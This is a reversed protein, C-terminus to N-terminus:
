DNERQKMKALIAMLKENGGAPPRWDVHVATGGQNRISEAFSALGVNIATVGRGGFAEMKVLPRQADPQPLRNYVYDLAENVNPFVQAGTAALREIQSDLMQPDLETGVVITVVRKGAQVAEAVAPALEQAPNPHAGEGLVVDLVIMDVAPDATEQQLRRLRLDNDMMPHLRGQTFEDEGL